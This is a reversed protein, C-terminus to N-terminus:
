RAGWRFHIEPLFFPHLNHRKLDFKPNLFAQIVRSSSYPDLKAQKKKKTTKFVDGLPHLFKVRSQMDAHTLLYHSVENKPHVTGKFIGVLKCVHLMLLMDM